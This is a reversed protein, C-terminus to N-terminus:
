NNYNRVLQSIFIRHEKKLEEFEKKIESITKKYEEASANRINRIDIIEEKIKKTNLEMINLVSTRTELLQKHISIDNNDKMRMNNMEKNLEDVSIKIKDLETKIININKNDSIEEIQEMISSLEATHANIIEINTDKIESITKCVIDLEEKIRKVQINIISNDRNISEIIKSMSKYIDDIIINATEENGIYQKNTM